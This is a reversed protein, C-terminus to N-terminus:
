RGRPQALGARGAVVANAKAVGANHDAVAIEVAAQVDGAKARDQRAELEREAAKTARARDREAVKAQRELEAANHGAVADDVAAQVPDVEATGAPGIRAVGAVRPAAKRMAANHEAVARDVAAQTPDQTM